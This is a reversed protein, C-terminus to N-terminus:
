NLIIIWTGCNPHRPIIGRALKLEFVSGDLPSCLPCVLDDGATSFEVAVGVRTVGLEQLVDLQGEAHARIVETRALTRARTTGITDIKKKLLRAIERPSKGQIFGDVLERSIQQSMVDSIGKLDNFARTTLVRVREVSPPQNFASELFEARSGSFFQSENLQSKKVDDFARRGGKRYSEDIFKQLKANGSTDTGLVSADINQQLWQKFAAVKQSQSLSAFRQNFLTLQIDSRNKKLGFADEVVILREIAGKLQKFGRITDAEFRRRIFSTRTPDTRLHNKHAM